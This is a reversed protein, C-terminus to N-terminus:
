IIMAIIVGEEQDVMVYYDADVKEFMSAVVYGKGPRKEQIVTAGEAEAISATQDTCNNDFVFIHASPLAQKFDQIVKGITVEENLCPIVIAINYDKFDISM